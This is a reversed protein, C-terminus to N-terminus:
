LIGFAAISVPMRLVRQGPRRSSKVKGLPGLEEEIYGVVGGSGPSQAGRDGLKGFGLGTGEEEAAKAVLIKLLHGLDEEREEIGDEPSGSRLLSWMMKAGMSLGRAALMSSRSAAACASSMGAWAAGSRAAASAWARAMVGGSPRMM